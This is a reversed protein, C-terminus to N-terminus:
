DNKAETNKVEIKKDHALELKKMNYEHEKQQKDLTQTNENNLKITKWKEYQHMKLYALGAGTLMPVVGIVCQPWYDLNDLIFPLALIVTGAIAMTAGVSYVLIDVIKYIYKLTTKKTEM